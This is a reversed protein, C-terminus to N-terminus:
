GRVRVGTIETAMQTAITATSEEVKAISPSALAVESTARVIKAITLRASSRMLTVFVGTDPGMKQTGDQTGTRPTRAEAANIAKSRHRRTM